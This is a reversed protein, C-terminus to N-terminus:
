EGEDYSYDGKLSSYVLSRLQKIDDYSPERGKSGAFDRVLQNYLMFGDRNIEVPKQLAAMVVKETASEGSDCNYLLCHKFDDLEKEEAHTLQRLNAKDFKKLYFPTIQEHIIKQIQNAYLTLSVFQDSAAKSTPLVTRKKRKSSDKSNRPRGQGSRGIPKNKQQQIKMQMQHNQIDMMSKEGPDKEDLEMGVQGPTVIGRQLAIKEKSLNPQADHYPSVKPTKKKESRSESERKLRVEEIYPDQGFKEQLTEESIINRDVLQVWLAKEAVDDQFNQNDYALRAPYRFGMAKQVMRIEPMWFASIMRRGYQLREIITRLSMFNNAFTGGAGGSQSTPVGLGAHISNIVGHYKESGLFKYIDTSTEEITLDPGWIFDM